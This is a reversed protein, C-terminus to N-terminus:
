KTAAKSAEPEERVPLGLKVKVDREIKRLIEPNEKLATKANERRACNWLIPQASRRSNAGLPCTSLGAAMEAKSGFCVEGM